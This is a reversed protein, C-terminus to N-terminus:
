VAPLRVWVRVFRMMKILVNKVNWLWSKLFMKVNADISLWNRVVLGLKQATVDQKSQPRITALPM